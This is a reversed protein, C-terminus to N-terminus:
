HGGFVVVEDVSLPMGVKLLLLIEGTGSVCSVVMILAVGSARSALFHCLPHRSDPPLPEGPRRRRQLFFSFSRACAEAIAPLPRHTTYVASLM